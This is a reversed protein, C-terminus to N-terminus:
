RKGRFPKMHKTMLRAAAVDHQARNGAHRSSFTPPTLGRVSTGKVGQPKAVSKFYETGM